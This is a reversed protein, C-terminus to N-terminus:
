DTHADFVINILLRLRDGILRLDSTGLCQRLYTGFRSAGGVVMDGRKELIRKWETRQSESLKLKACEGFDPCSLLYVFIGSAIKPDVSSVGADVNLTRVLPPFSHSIFNMLDLHASNFTILSELFQARRVQVPPLNEFGVDGEMLPDYFHDDGKAATEVTVSDGFLIYEASESTCYSMLKVATPLWVNDEQAVVKPLIAPLQILSLDNDESAEELSEAALVQLGTSDFFELTGDNVDRDTETLLLPGFTARRKPNSQGSKKLISTLKKPPPQTPPAGLESLETASPRDTFRTGGESETSLTEESSSEQLRCLDAVTLQGTEPTNEKDFLTEKEIDPTETEPAEEEKSRATERESKQRNVAKVTLLAEATEADRSNSAEENRSSDENGSSATEEDSSHATEEDSSYAAEEDSFNGTEEDRASSTEVNTATEGVVLVPHHEVSCERVTELCHTKEFKDGSSRTEEPARGSGLKSKEKLRTYEEFQAERTEADTEAGPTYTTDACPTRVEQILPEHPKAARDGVCDEYLRVLYSPPTRFQCQQDNLQRKVAAYNELCELSCLCEATTKDVIKDSILLKLHGLTLRGSPPTHCNVWGCYGLSARNLCVDTWDDHCLYEIACARLRHFHLGEVRPTEILVKCLYHRLRERYLRLLKERQRWAATQQPGM